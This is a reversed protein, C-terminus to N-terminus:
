QPPPPPGSGAGHQAACLAHARNKFLNAQEPTVV